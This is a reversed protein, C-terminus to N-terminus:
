GFIYAYILYLLVETSRVSIAHKGCINRVCEQTGLLFLGAAASKIVAAQATGHPLRLFGGRVIGM